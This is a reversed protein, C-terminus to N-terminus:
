VIRFAALRALVFFSALSALRARFPYTGLM